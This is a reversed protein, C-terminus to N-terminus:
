TLVSLDGYDVSDLRLRERGRSKRKTVSALGLGAAPPLCWQGCPWRRVLGHQLKSTLFSRFYM